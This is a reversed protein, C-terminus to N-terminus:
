KACWYMRVHPHKTTPFDFPPLLPTVTHFHHQLISQYHHEDGDRHNNAFLALGQESLLSASSTVLHEWAQAVAFAGGQRSVAFVPPDCIILDLARYNRTDNYKRRLQRALWQRVDEQIFKGVRHRDLQNAALNQKGTDLCAQALDISFVVEAQHAIAVQSFSCTFAFLNAIRRHAAHLAVRRRNDRQDLFLGTHKNETLQVRYKFGHEHVWFPESNPHGLWHSARTLKNRHPDRNSTRVLAGKCHYIRMLQEIAPRLAAETQAPSQSEDYAWVSLLDGYVEAAFPLTAMEDRHVVRYANTISKLWGLRRDQCTALAIDVQTANQELAIFSPPPPATVPAAWWPGTVSAHHVMPRPLATTTDHPAGAIAVGNAASYSYIDSHQAQTVHAQYHFNDKAAQLLTFHPPNRVAYKSWFTYESRLTSAETHQYQQQAQSHKALILVGSAGSELPHCVHLDLDHHLRLWAVAASVSLATPKNVVLWDQDEYLIFTNDM